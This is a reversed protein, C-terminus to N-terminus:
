RGEAYQVQSHMHIAQQVRAAAVVNNLSQWTPQLRHTDDNAVEEHEETICCMVTVYEVVLLIVYTEVMSDGGHRHTTSNGVTKKELV